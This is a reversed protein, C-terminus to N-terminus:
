RVLVMKKRVIGTHETEVAYFYIGAGVANGGDDRGDWRAVHSGREQIGDVLTRVSAGRVDFVKVTVRGPRSLDYEIVTAPGFPNPHNQSVRDTVEPEGGVAVGTPSCSLQASAVIGDCFEGNGLDFQAQAACSVGLDYNYLRFSMINGCVFGDVAPTNPDDGWVTIEIPGTGDWCGAGVCLDGDFVGV